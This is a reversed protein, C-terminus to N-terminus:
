GHIINSEFQIDLGDKIKVKLEKQLLKKHNWYIQLRKMELKTNEVATAKNENKKWYNM